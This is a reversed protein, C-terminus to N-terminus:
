FRPPASMQRMRRNFMQKDRRDQEREEIAQEYFDAFQHYADMSARLKQWLGKPAGKPIVSSSGQDKMLFQAVELINPDQELNNQYRDFLSELDRSQGLANYAVALRVFNLKEEEQWENPLSKPNDYLKQYADVVKSYEEELWGIEALLKVSREDGNQQKLIKEAKKFAGQAIYNEAEIYARSNALEAALPSHETRVLANLSEDYQDNLYYLKALNRGMEAKLVNDKVRYKLQRELVTIARDFLGLDRLRRAIQAILKDGKPGPPTLERYDYYLGLLALPDLKSVATEDLYLDTFASMMLETIESSSEAYPFYINHYKLRELGKRQEGRSVYMYGLKKLIQEEVFGGRWLYRLNELHEIAQKVGLDGRSLLFSVFEYQALFSVEQNDSSAAQALLTEALGDNREIIAAKALLMLAEAPLNAQRMKTSMQEMLQKLDSLREQRLLLRGYSTYIEQVLHKPYSDAADIYEEYLDLAAEDQDTQELAAALWLQRDKEFNESTETLFPLAEQPRGIMVNAAGSLIRASTDVIMGTEPDKPMNDMMMLVEFPREYSMYVKALRLRYQQRKLQSPAQSLADLLKKQFKQYVDYSGDGYKKFIPENPDLDPIRFNVEDFSEAKEYDFDVAIDQGHIAGIDTLVQQAIRVAQAKSEVEPVEQVPTVATEKESVDEPKKDDVKFDDQRAVDNGFFSDFADQEATRAVVAQPVPEASVADVEVKSRQPINIDRLRKTAQTINALADDFRAKKVNSELNVVAEAQPVEAKEPAPDTTATVPTVIAPLVQVAEVVPAVEVVELPETQKEAQTAVPQEQTKPQNQVAQIAPTVTGATSLVTEAVPSKQALRLLKQTDNALFQQRGRYLSQLGQGKDSVFAYGAYSPLLQSGDNLQKGAQASGAFYPLATVNEGTLNSAANLLKAGSFGSLVVGEKLDILSLPQAGQPMDLMEITPLSDGFAIRVGAGGNVKLSEGATINYKKRIDSPINLDVNEQADSVVWLAKDKLFTALRQRDADIEAILNGDKENLTVVPAAWATSSLLLVFGFTVGFKM